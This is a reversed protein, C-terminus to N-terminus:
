SSKMEKVWKKGILTYYKKKNIQLLEKIKLPCWDEDTICAAISIKKAM